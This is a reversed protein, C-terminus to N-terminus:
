VVVLKEVAELLEKPVSLFPSHNAKLSATPANPGLQTALQQQLPYPLAGDDETFIYACPVGDNWPEYESTGEFLVASTHAFEKSWKEQEEPSLDSFGIEARVDAPITVRDDQTTRRDAHLSFWSGAVDKIYSRRPYHLSGM